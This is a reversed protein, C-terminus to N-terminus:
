ICSPDLKQKLPQSETNIKFSPRTYAKLCVRQSFFRDRLSAYLCIVFESMVEAVPAALSLSLSISTSAVIEWLFRIAPLTTLDFVYNDNYFLIHNVNKMCLLPM